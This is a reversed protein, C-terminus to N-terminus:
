SVLVTLLEALKWGWKEVMEEPLHLAVVGQKALLMDREKDGESGELSLRKGAITLPTEMRLSIREWSDKHGNKCSRNFNPRQRTTQDCNEYICRWKDVAVYDAGKFPYHAALLDDSFTHGLPGTQSTTSASFSPLSLSTTASTASEPYLSTTTISPGRTSSAKAKAIGAITGESRKLEKYQPPLLGYIEAPSLPIMDAMRAAVKEPMGDVALRKAISILRAQTEMRPVPRQVDLHLAVIDKALDLSVGFKQAIPQIRRAERTERTGAKISAAHSHNGRILAGDEAAYIDPVFQGIQSFSRALRDIHKRNLVKDPAM